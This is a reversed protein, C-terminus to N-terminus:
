ILSKAEDHIASTIILFSCFSQVGSHEAIIVLVYFEMYVISNRTNLFPQQQKFKNSLIKLKGYISHVNLGAKLITRPRTEWFLKFLFVMIGRIESFM